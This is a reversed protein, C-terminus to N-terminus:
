RGLGPREVSFETRYGGGPRRIFVHRVRSVYYAGEFPTGAGNISVTAGVRLRADGMALGNGCVFRRAQARFTAQALAEAESSSLPVAHVLQDVRDGFASSLIGAGSEAGALESSIASDTAEFSIVDKAGVDWGSAVVSTHQRALDAGVTFELLGQDLTLSLDQGAPTRRTRSQVHLTRDDLWVEADLWRARERIFALDSQNVQALLAHSPGDADIDPQLGHEGAIQSFVDADTMEEFARSRRVMRLDQARDEALVTVSAPSSRSYQSELATIRGRFVEGEGEGAGLRVVLSKGFDLVDRNFYVYGVAGDITGWNGFRAECRYLGETTEEVVLDLLGASLRANEQGDIEISAETAVIGPVIGLETM